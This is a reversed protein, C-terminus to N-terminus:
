IKYFADQCFSPIASYHLLLESSLLLSHPRRDLLVTKRLFSRPLSGLKVMVRLPDHERHGKSAAFPTLQIDLALSLGFTPRLLLFWVHQVLRKM